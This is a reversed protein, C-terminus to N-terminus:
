VGRNAWWILLLFADQAADGQEAEAHCGHLGRVVDAPLVGKLHTHPRTPSPPSPPSISTPDRSHGGRAKKTTPRPASGLQPSPFQQFGRPHAPSVSAHLPCLPKVEWQTPQSHKGRWARSGDQGNWHYKEASSEREPVSCGWSWKKKAQKSQHMLQQEDARGATSTPPSLQFASSPLGVNTGSCVGDTGEM